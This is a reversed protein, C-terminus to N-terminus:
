RITVRRSETSPPEPFFGVSDVIERTLYERGMGDYKSSEIYVPTDGPETERVLRLTEILEDLTM